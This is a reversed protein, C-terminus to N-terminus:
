STSTPGPAEARSGPRTGAPATRARTTWVRDTALRASPTRADTRVTVTAVRAYDAQRAAYRDALDPAALVPRRPDAGVRALAQDFSVELHVVTHGALRGRTTPNGCAGGGLSLVASPGDLLDAITAAELARFASEGDSAFVQAISRGAREEIVTDSDLFPLGLRDALSRGVTSKGAGMFGVLVIM